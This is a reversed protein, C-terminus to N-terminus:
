ASVIRVMGDMARAKNRPWFRPTNSDVQAQVFGLFGEHRVRGPSSRRGSRRRLDRGARRCTARRPKCSSRAPAGVQMLVSSNVCSRSVASVSAIL